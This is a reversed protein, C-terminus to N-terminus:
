SPPCLQEWELVTSSSLLYPPPHSPDLPRPPLTKIFAAVEEPSTYASTVGNFTVKLSAPYFMGYRIGCDLLQCHAETFCQRKQQLDRSLDPYFSINNGQLTSRGKEQAAKLIKERTPYRLLKVIFAQPRKDPPPHPGLSCHAREIELPDSSDLGLLDPLVKTLFTCPNNGEVGEPFGLIRVNNRCSRNELDDIRSVAASLQSQLHQSQTDRLRNEDEIMSIRAEAATIKTGLNNVSSHLSQLDTKFGEFNTSLKHLIHFI